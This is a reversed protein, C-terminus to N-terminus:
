RFRIAPSGRGLSRPLHGAGIRQPTAPYPETAPLSIILRLVAARVASTAVTMVMASVEAASALADRVKTEPLPLSPLVPALQGCPLGHRLKAAAYETVLEPPSIM